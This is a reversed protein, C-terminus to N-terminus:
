RVPARALAPVPANKQLAAIRDKAEALDPDGNLAESYAALAPEFKGQAELAKGFWLFGQPSASIQLARSFDNAANAFKAEAYFAQGRGILSRYRRADLQLVATYTREAQQYDGLILYASALNHLSSETVPESTSYTIAAQFEPISERTIESIQDPGSTRTQNPGGESV